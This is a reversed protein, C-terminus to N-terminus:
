IRFNKEKLELYFCNYKLRDAIREGYKETIIPHNIPYNSSFFTYSYPMDDFRTLLIDEMPKIKNGMYTIEKNMGFDDIYISGREQYEFKGTRIYENNIDNEKKRVPSLYFYTEEYTYFIKLQSFVDYLINCFTTKGTGTPGAIYFAKRQGTGNLWNYVTNILKQIEPTIEYNDAYKSSCSKFTEIFKKYDTKFLIVKHEM